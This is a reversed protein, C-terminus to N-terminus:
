LVLAGPCQRGRPAEPRREGSVVVREREPGIVDVGQIAPARREGRQVARV